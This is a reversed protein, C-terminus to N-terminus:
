NPKPGYSCDYQFQATRGYQLFHGQPNAMGGTMNVVVPCQIIPTICRFSAGGLSVKNFGTACDTQYPNIVPGVNPQSQYPYQATPPEKPQSGGPPQQAAPPQYQNYSGAPPAPQYQRTQGYVAGPLMVAAALIIGYIKM